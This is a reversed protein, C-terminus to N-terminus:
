FDAGVYYRRHNVTDYSSFGDQIQEATNVYNFMEVTKGDLWSMTNFIIAEKTCPKLTKENSSVCHLLRLFWEREAKGKIDLKKWADLLRLSLLGQMGILTGSKSEQAACDKMEYSEICSLRSTLAAARLVLTEKVSLGYVEAARDCLSLLHLTNELAGGIKGYFVSVSAPAAFFLKLVDKDFVKLLLNGIPSSLPISDNVLSQLQSHFASQLEEMNEVCPLYLSKDVESNDAVCIDELIHSAKGRYDECRVKAVVFLGKKIEDPVLGWFKAYVEGSRDKLTVETYDKKTTTKKIAVDKVFYIGTFTEGIPQQAIFKHEM